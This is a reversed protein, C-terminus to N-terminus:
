PNATSLIVGKTTPAMTRQHLNWPGVNAGPHTYITVDPFFQPVHNLWLQDVFQGPMGDFCFRGLRDSFWDIFRKSAECRRIGLFGGNFIGNRLTQLEATTIFEERAPSVSHPNLLVSSSTLAQMADSLDGLVYIDSDLYIWAESSSKQWMYEHLLGRVACCFEFPTYYFSMAEIMEPHGLDELLVTQFPETSPDFCGDVRDALLVYMKASPHVALLSRALVRAHALYSKTVITCINM